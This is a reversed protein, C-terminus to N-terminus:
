AQKFGSEKEWKEFNRFRDPTHKAITLLKRLSKKWCVKCNDEYGKLEIRFPMQSWFRNIMPKTAPCFQYSILPYIFKRSEWNKSIRDIEDKRIGIATYYDKWNISRLYAGIAREKLERTCWIRTRNPIGHKAIAMEFPEGDRSATEFDVVKASVGKGYQPNTIAEIWIVGISFYDDCKQIFELTEENEEGTNAFVVIIEFQGNKNNILWQTMFASSEGGSFSILLKPKM